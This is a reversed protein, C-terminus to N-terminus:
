HVVIDDEPLSYYKPQSPYILATLFTFTGVRGILMICSLLIKSIDNLDTTISRSLGVTSIASVVEFILDLSNKDPEFYILILSFIFIFVSSIIIVAFAKNISQQRIMRGFVELKANGKLISWANLISVLFTTVKIGGATSMPAGGVFMLFMLTFVTLVSLRETEVINFGATRSTISLFLSNFIKDFFNMKEFLHDKENLYFLLMGFLLLLLTSSLVMKTTTNLVKYKGSKIFYSWGIKQLNSMTPFGLGGVIILLMIGSMFFKNELFVDTMMGKSYLSFGANCFSSISHFISTWILDIDIANGHTLLCLYLYGAGLIEITFTFICIKILISKAESLKNESFMERLLVRDKIGLGGSILGTFAITLTMMGIGGLQILLLIIIQGLLSFQDLDMVSLGTVSIASTAMFISDVWSIDVNTSKPMKLLLSGIIIPLIFSIIFIQSPRFKVKLSFVKNEAKGIFATFMSLINLASLFWILFYKINFDHFFFLVILCGFIMVFLILLEYWDVFILNLRNKIKAFRYFEKLFLISSVFINFFLILDYALINLDYGLSICLCISVMLGLIFIARDFLKFIKLM